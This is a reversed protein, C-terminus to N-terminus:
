QRVEAQDNGDDFDNPEPKTVSPTVGRPRVIISGDATFEITEVPYKAATAARFVRGIVRQRHLVKSKPM